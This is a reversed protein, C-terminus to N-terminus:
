ESKVPSAFLCVCIGCFFRIFYVCVNRVTLVVIIYLMLLIIIPAFLFNELKRLYVQADNHENAKKFNYM